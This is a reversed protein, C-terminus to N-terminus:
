FDLNLGFTITRALPVAGRQYGKRLPDGPFGNDAEPNFSAYDGPFLYFLNAASTYFRMKSIRMKRLTRAPLTYGINLNRVAVFSASEINANTQFKQVLMAQQAATYGQSLYATTGTTGFQTEFYYPDINFVKAGHSGQIVISIDFNKIQFNSTFGWNFKPYPNGLITKDSDNIVGNKDVDKAFAHISTVGIPWYNTNKVSVSSDMKYGYYQVLPSGVKTLFFNPRKPDGQTIQNDAGGFDLLTNKNTYGNASISWKFNYYLGNAILYPLNLLLRDTNTNYYDVTLNMKNFLTFDAGLNTSFTREWKLNPNALSIKQYGPSIGDGLVAYAPDIISFYKYDGIKKNGTAGYSARLKVNDVVSNEPWFKENSIRWGASVSPFFAYRNDPGFRSSGDTRESVSFLYKNDYAYNLRVLGSVLAEDQATDNLSQFTGANLTAVDDTAFNGVQLSTYTINTYQTSFVAIADIDHKKFVRKYNLINENSFDFITTKTLIAKSTSRAFAEGDLAAEAQAWSKQFYNRTNVNYLAGVTSKFSLYPSIDYKVSFNTINRVQTTRDTTGGLQQLPNNTTASSLNPGTYNPNYSSYFDRM